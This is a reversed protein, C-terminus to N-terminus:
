AHSQNYVDDIVDELSEKETVKELTGPEIKDVYLIGDLHDIEHELAESKLGTADIKFVNGELDTARVIVERSRKIKAEMGPFSLCGETCIREGMHKIVKPNILVIPEEKPLWIIILRKSVGVQPAALGVGGANDLTDIMDRALKIISEDIKTIVAAKKRLTPHPAVLIQRIAM